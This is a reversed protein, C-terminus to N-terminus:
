WFPLGTISTINCTEALCAFIDPFGKFLQRTECCCPWHMLLYSRHNSITLVCMLLSFTYEGKFFLRVNVHFDFINELQYTVVRLCMITEAIFMWFQMKFSFLFTMIWWLENTMKHPWLIFEGVERSALDLSSVLTLPAHVVLLDVDM